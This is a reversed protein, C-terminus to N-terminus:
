EEEFAGQLNAVMWVPLDGRLVSAKLLKYDLEELEIAQDGAKDIEMAIRWLRVANENNTAIVPIRRLLLEGITMPRGDIMPPEMGRLVEIHRGLELTRKKM